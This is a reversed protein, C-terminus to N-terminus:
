VLGVVNGSLVELIFVKKFESKFETALILNSVNVLKEQALLDTTILLWYENLNQKMYLRFKEDKKHISYKIDGLLDTSNGLNNVREWVSYELKPHCIILIADIGPPLGKKVLVQNFGTENFGRVSDLILRFVRVSITFVQGPEIKETTSFLFKVFCKLSNKGEFLYRTNEILEERTKVQLIEKELFLSQSVPYLRTLEIGLTFRNNLALLFDPSESEVLNGEPFPPYVQKFYALLLGELQKKQQYQDL